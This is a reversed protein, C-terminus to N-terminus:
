RWGIVSLQRGAGAGERRYSAFAPDCFTCPGTFMIHNRPVGANIMQTRNVERLDLFGKEGVPRWATSHKLNWREAIPQGVEAGVEYCCGGIAPGLAVHLQEPRVQWQAQLQEIARLTIGKLTGRWGAHLAAAVGGDSAVLLVPVCDATAIGLLLGRVSSILGDAEPKEAASSERTITVITDGHVQKLTYLPLQGVGFQELTEERNTIRGSFGHILRPIDRWNKVQLWAM